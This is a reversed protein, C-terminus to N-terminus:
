DLYNIKQIEKAWPLYNNQLDDAINLSTNVGKKELLEHRYKGTSINTHYLLNTMFPLM